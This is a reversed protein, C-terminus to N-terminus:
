YRLPFHYLLAFFTHPHNSQFFNPAQKGNYQEAAKAFLEKIDQWDEYTCVPGTLHKGYAATSSSNSMKLRLRESTVSLRDEEDPRSSSSSLSSLTPSPPPATPFVPKTHSAVLLQNQSVGTCNASLRRRKHHRHPAPRSERNTISPRQKSARPDTPAIASSNRGPARQRPYQGLKHHRTFSGRSRKLHSETPVTMPVHSPLLTLLM